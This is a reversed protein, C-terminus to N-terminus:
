SCGPLSGKKDPSRCRGSGNGPMRTWHPSGPFSAPSGLCGSTAPNSAARGRRGQTNLGRRSCLGQLLACNISPVTTEPQEDTWGAQTVTLAPLALNMNDSDFCSGSPLTLHGSEGLQGSSPVLQWTDAGPESCVHTHAGQHCACRPSALALPHRSAFLPSPQAKPPEWLLHLSCLQSDPCLGATAPWRPETNISSSISAGLSSSDHTVVHGEPHYELCGFAGDRPRQRLDGGGPINKGDKADRLNWGM